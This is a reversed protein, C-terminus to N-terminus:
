VQLVEHEPIHRTFGGYSMAVVTVRDDLCNILGAADTGFDLNNNVGDALFLLIGVM